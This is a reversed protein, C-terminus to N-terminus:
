IENRLKRLVGPTLIQAEASASLEPVHQLLLASWDGGARGIRFLTLQSAGSVILDQEPAEEPVADVQDLQAPQADAENSKLTETIQTESVSAFCASVFLSFILGSAMQFIRPHSM